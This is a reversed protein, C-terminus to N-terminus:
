HVSCMENFLVIFAVAPFELELAVEVFIQELALVLCVDPQRRQKLQGQKRKRKRRSTGQRRRSINPAFCM